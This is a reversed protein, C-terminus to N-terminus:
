GPEQELARLGRTLKGQGSSGIITVPTGVGVRAFLDDIDANTLAICGLTWDWGRGGEGHIQILSGPGADARVAGERKLAKLRQHDDSNPYDIDLARYYRTQGHNKKAVIRYKGEPTARDGQRLKRGLANEGFEAHYRRVAAGRTYLTLSREDKDVLIASSRGRRTGEITQRKLERWRALERPDRFRASLELAERRVDRATAEANQALARAAEYREGSLLARAESVRVAAGALRRRASASLPFSATLQRTADVWTAVRQVAAAADTRSASAHLLTRSQAHLARVTAGEFMARAATFDRRAGLRLQQRRQELAAAQLRAEADALTDASWHDARLRRAEAVAHEAAARELLPDQRNGLIAPLCFGIGAGLAIAVALGTM